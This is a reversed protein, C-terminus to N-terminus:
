TAIDEINKYKQIDKRRIALAFFSLSKTGVRGAFMLFIMVLKGATNLHPTLGTSLGATGIASFSEFIYQLIYTNENVTHVSASLISIFIGCVLFFTYSHLTALASRIRYTPIIHGFVTPHKDLVISKYHALTAVITTVKVGGGTGSPAAGIFMLLCLTIFSIGGFSNLNAPVTNFGAGTLASISQFLASMPTYTVPDKVWLILTSTIIIISIFLIIIKSTFTIKEKKFYSTLDKLVIFGFGGILSTVSIILNILVNNQYGQLNTDFLSFGACCFASVSHFIASWLPNEGQPSQSFAIYLFFASILEISFTFVILNTLFGKMSFEEPLTFSHNLVKITQNSFNKGRMLLLFSGMTMYGIGGLQILILIIVQGLFNFQSTPITSLGTTTVASAATFLADIPNTFTTSKSLFPLTLLAGGVLIYALYGRFLIGIFTVDRKMSFIKMRKQNM